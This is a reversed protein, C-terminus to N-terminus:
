ETIIGEWVTATIKEAKEKSSFPVIFHSGVGQTHVVRKPISRIFAIYANASHWTM